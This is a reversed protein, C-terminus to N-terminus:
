SFNHALAVELHDVANKRSGRYLSNTDTLFPKGKKEKIKDVLPRIYEPSIFKTNGREGFHVKLAVLDKEKILGSFGAKRFLEGIGEREPEGELFYVKSAM